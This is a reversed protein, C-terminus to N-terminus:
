APQLQSKLIVTMIKVILEHLNFPKGIFDSGGSLTSQVRNEMTALGTLFVIPTTAHLPLERIHRCLEFGDMGPLNVDLLILDCRRGALEGLAAGPEQACITRMAATEMAMQIAECNGADDDVAYILSQAPDKALAFCGDRLLAGFFEITQLVTLLTSPNVQEPIEYLGRTLDSLAACLRHIASYGTTRARESLGHIHCHLENLLSLDGPTKTFSQFCQRMAGVASRAEKETLPEGDGARLPEVAPAPEPETAAASQHLIGDFDSKKAGGRAARSAATAFKVHLRAEALTASLERIERQASQLRAGLDITELRQQEFRKHLLALEEQRHRATDGTSELAAVQSRLAVLRAELGLANETAQARAHDRERIIHEIQKQAAQVSTLAADREAAQADLQRQTEARQVAAAEGLPQLAALQHNVAELEQQLNRAGHRAERAQAELAALKEHAEALAQSSHEAAEDRSAQFQTRLEELERAQEQARGRAADREQSVSLLQARAEALAAAHESGAQLVASKQETLDLLKGRQGDLERTLEDVQRATADRDLTTTDLQRRYEAAETAAQRAAKESLERQYEFDAAQDEARGLRNTLELLQAHAGDRAQRIALIQKQTEGILRTQEDNARNFAAFKGATEDRQRAAEDRQRQAESRERAADELKLAAEALERRRREGTEVAADREQILSTVEVFHSRLDLETERLVEIQQGARAFQHAMADREQEATRAHARADRATKQLQEILSRIELTPDSEESMAAEPLSAISLPTRREDQPVFETYETHKPQPHSM